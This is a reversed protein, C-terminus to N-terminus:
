LGPYSKSKEIEVTHDVFNARVVELPCVYSPDYAPGDESVRVSADAVRQMEEETVARRCVEM